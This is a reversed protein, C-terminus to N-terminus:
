GLTQLNSDKMSGCGHNSMHSCYQNTGPLLRASIFINLSFKNRIDSIIKLIGELCQCHSQEGEKEICTGNNKCFTTNCDAIDQECRNGTWYDGCLCIFSGPLNICVGGNYCPSINCEDVDISCDEGAWGQLCSCKHGALIFYVCYHDSAKYM